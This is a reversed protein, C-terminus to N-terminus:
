SPLSFLLLPLSVIPGTVPTIASSAKKYPLPAGLVNQHHVQGPHVLVPHAYKGKTGAYHKYPLTQLQWSPFSPIHTCHPIITPLSVFIRPWNAFMPLLLSSAFLHWYKSCSTQVNQFCSLGERRESGELLSQYNEKESSSQWSSLM